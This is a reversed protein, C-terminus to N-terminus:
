ITMITDHGRTTRPLKTIFDINIREWRASPPPLPQIEGYPRHNTHKVRACLECNRVYTEVESALGRWWFHRRLESITKRTGGHGHTDHAEGILFTTLPPHQPVVLLRSHQHYLLEEKNDWYFHNKAQFRAKRWMRQIKPSPANALQQLYFETSPDQILAKIRQLQEDKVPPERYDPRRSIADQVYNRAGKVHKIDFDYGQLGDILRMQRPSISSQKMAHHVTKHDCHVTFHGGTLYHNWHRIADRVGLLEREYASYRTETPSLKRSYYAITRSVKAEGGQMQRLTAGLAYQSADVWVEFETNAPEPAVVVPDSSLARKIEQFDAAATASEAWAQQFEKPRLNVLSYLHASTAAY